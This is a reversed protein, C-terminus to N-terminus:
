RSSIKKKGSKSSVLQGGKTSAGLMPMGGTLNQSKIHSEATRQRLIELPLPKEDLEEEKGEQEKKESEEALISEISKTEGTDDVDQIKKDEETLIQDAADKAKQFDLLKDVSSKEEKEEDKDLFNKLAEGKEKLFELM